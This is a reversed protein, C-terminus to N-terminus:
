LCSHSISSLGAKQMLQQIVLVVTDSGQAGSIARIAGRGDDTKLEIWPVGSADILDKHPHNKMENEVWDDLESSLLFEKAGGLELDDAIRCLVKLQSIDEKRDFHADFCKSVVAPELEASKSRAWKALRHSDTTDRQKPRLVWPKFVVDFDMQASLADM